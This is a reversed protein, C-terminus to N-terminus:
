YDENCKCAPQGLRKMEEDALKKNQEQPFIDSFERAWCRECHIKLDTM